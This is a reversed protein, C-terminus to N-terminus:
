FKRVNDDADGFILDIVVHLLNLGKKVVKISTLTLYFPLSQSMAKFIAFETVNCYFTM